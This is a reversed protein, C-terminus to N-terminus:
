TERRLHQAAVAGAKRGFEIMADIAPTAHDFWELATMTLAAPQQSPDLLKRRMPERDTFYRQEVLGALDMVRVEGEVTALTSQLRQWARIVNHRNYEAATLQRRAARGAAALFIAIQARERGAHEAMELSLRQVELWGTIDADVRGLELHIKRLLEEMAGILATPMDFSRAIAHISRQRAPKETERDTESRQSVAVEHASELRAFIREADLTPGLRNLRSQARELAADALGRREDIAARDHGSIPDPASLAALVLGRGGAFSASAVLLDDAVKLALKREALTFRKSADQNSDTQEGLQQLALALAAIICAALLVGVHDKSELRM